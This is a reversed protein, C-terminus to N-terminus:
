RRLYWPSFRDLGRHKHYRRWEKDDTSQADATELLSWGHRVQEVERYRALGEVGASDLRAERGRFWRNSTDPSLAKAGTGPRVRIPWLVPGNGPPRASRKVVQRALQAPRASTGVCVRAPLRRPFQAQAKPRRRRPRASRSM